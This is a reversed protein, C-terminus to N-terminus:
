RVIGGDVDGEANIAATKVVYFSRPRYDTPSTFDQVDRDGNIIGAASFFGNDVLVVVCNESRDETVFSSLMVEPIQTGHKQLFAEKTMTTPNLYQTM